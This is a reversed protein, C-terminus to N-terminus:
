EAEHQAAMPRNLHPLPITITLGGGSTTSFVPKGGFQGSLQQIIVSGMGGEGADPPLGVGNDSISLTPVEDVRALAVVITGSKGDPFAHKLANTVLESVLIGITTADRAGVEIDEIESKVEIHGSMTQTNMIDELV